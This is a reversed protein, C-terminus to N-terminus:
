RTQSAAFRIPCGKPGLATSTTQETGPCPPAAGCRCCADDGPRSTRASARRGNDCPPDCTRGCAESSRVGSSERPLSQGAISKPWYSRSSGSATHAIRKAFAQTKRVLPELRKRLDAASVKDYGHDVKVSTSLPGARAGPSTSLGDWKSGDLAFGGITLKERQACTKKVWDNSRGAPYVSDRVKSVVGEYAVTFEVCCASEFHRLRIENRFGHIRSGCVASRKVFIRNSL